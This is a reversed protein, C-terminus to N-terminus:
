RLEIFLDDHNFDTDVAESANPAHDKTCRYFIEAVVDLDDADVIEKFGLIEGVHEFVVRDVAAEFAVNRDLAIVEDDVAVFDAESGDFIGGSELPVFDASVDHHFRGTEKEVFGSGFGVELRTGLFDDHGSRGLVLGRHEDIAHVM